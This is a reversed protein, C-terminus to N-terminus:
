TYWRRYGLLRNKPFAAVSVQDSQNGGLVWIKDGEERIFFGVHGHIPNPPRTFVAIDGLQPKLAGKQWKLYSRASLLRTSEIGARELCSGLFAACWATEDDKVWSHGVDAFYQVIKPNHGVSLEKVGIDKIALSLYNGEFVKKKIEEIKLRTETGVIGDAKLGYMKQLDIVAKETKGGFDGDVVLKAHMVQNLDKQLEEVDKGKSGKKLIPKYISVYGKMAYHIKANNFSKKKVFPEYTDFYWVNEKGIAHMMMAHTGPVPYAIHLPSQKIHTRAAEQQLKSFEPDEDYFVFEYQFSLVSLIRKAKEKMAPTIVAPNHYEAWSNGGFPLDKEPLLGNKRISDWVKQFYNGQPTTGSMIATFRDSCNFNGKEDFYEKILALQSDSFKKNEILWKIQTEIVNHASFSTCSMTDFVFDRAQKEVSPLFPAWDSVREEYVIQTNAGAIYDTPSPPVVILGTQQM